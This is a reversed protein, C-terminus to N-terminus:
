FGVYPFLAVAGDTIIYVAMKSKTQIVVENTAENPSGASQEM